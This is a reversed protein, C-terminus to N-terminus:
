IQSVVSSFCSLLLDATLLGARLPVDSYMVYRCKNPTLHQSHCLFWLAFVHKINDYLLMGSM